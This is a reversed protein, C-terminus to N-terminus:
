KVQIRLSKIFKDETIDTENLINGSQIFKVNITAVDAAPDQFGAILATYRKPELEVSKSGSEQFHITEDGVKIVIQCGESDQLLVKVNIKSM